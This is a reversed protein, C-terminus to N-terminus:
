MRKLLKWIPLASLRSAKELLKRFEKGNARATAAKRLLAQVKGNSRAREQTTQVIEKTLKVQQQADRILQHRHDHLYAKFATNALNSVNVKLNRLAEAITPDVTITLHVKNM